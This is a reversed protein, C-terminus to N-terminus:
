PQTAAGCRGLINGRHLTANFNIRKFKFHQSPASLLRYIPVARLAVATNLVIATILEWPYSKLFNKTLQYIIAQCLYRAPTKDVIKAGHLRWQNQLVAM